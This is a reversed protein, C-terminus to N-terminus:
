LNIIRLLKKKWQYLMGLRLDLFDIDVTEPSGRAIDISTYLSVNYAWWDGCAQGEFIIWPCTNCSVLAQCLPCGELGSLNEYCDILKEVAFLVRLAWYKSLPM